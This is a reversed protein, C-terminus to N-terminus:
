DAKINAKRVVPIWKADESELYAKFEAPTMAVAKAGLANFKEVVAPDKLIEALTDHLKTVIEAPTGAPAFLGTFTQGDFDKYGLETFTPVDPLWSARHSGTVALARVHREQHVATGVSIQDFAFQM